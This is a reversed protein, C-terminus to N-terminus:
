YEKEFYFEGINRLIKEDSILLNIIHSREINFPIEFVDEFEERMPHLKFFRYMDQLYQTYITRDKIFQDLVEDNSSLENMAKIEMNFMEMM